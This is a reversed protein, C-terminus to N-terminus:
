KLLEVIDCPIEIRNEAAMRLMNNKIRVIIEKMIIRLIKDEEDLFLYFNAM